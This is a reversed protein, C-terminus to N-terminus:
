RGNNAGSRRWADIGLGTIEIGNPTIEIFGKAEMDVWLLRIQKEVCTNCMPQDEFHGLSTVRAGCKPCTILGSMYDEEGKTGVRKTFQWLHQNVETSQGAADTMPRKRTGLDKTDANSLETFYEAMSQRVEDVTWRPNPDGFERNDYVFIRQEDM